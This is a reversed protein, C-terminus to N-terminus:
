ANLTELAAEFDFRQVADRLVAFRGSLAAALLGAHESLLREAAADDDALLARLRGLVAAQEAPDAPVALQETEPPLAAAIAAIRAALEEELSCILAEVSDSKAHLAAELAKARKQVEDAGVQGALGKLTHAEREATPEDAAALAQRIRQPMDAQGKVFGRLLALYREPKGLVRRLGAAMDLGDIYAPLQADVRTDVRADGEAAAVAEREGPKVWRLLARWLEEPEIPKSVFGNMGAELCRQRDAEMANATMAVIPLTALSPDRRLTRTADIGDLVPMQMDMLVIDYPKARAMEVAQQGDHAVDVRLGADRLLETAVQRNLENDEALLVRAGRLAALEAEAMGSQVEVVLDEGHGLRATFWFTSGKGPESEVGVEGGMLEALNKSIALGLGTGGYKRTTSADAQSFSQFLRQQQEPSLGIGTDRVAFRLLAKDDSLELLRVSVEIQGAETFKIANSVYNILIQGLRLSDGILVRPVDAGVDFMLTLGKAAIKDAHLSALHDLVQDLRFVREEVGLKGAEIKSFDLIDNIIGLLHQGSLHIKQLYDRQRPDLDTKLALYGMGIIANLPTRIEHSMNALFDAKTRAAGEALEKARRMQSEAAKLKDINVVWGLIAQEGEFETRLFTAMLHHPQNDPGYLQLEMDQVLGDQTLRELMLERAGEDVFVDRSLREKMRVLQRIRRNAFRFVGDVTIAVGVPATDLVNQLREREKQLEATRSVVKSELETTAEHLMHRMGEQAEALQRVEAWQTPVEVPRELDLAGIRRSEAGLRELPRVFERAIGLALAAGAGLSALALLLLLALDGPKSPIFDSEPAAVLLWVPNGKGVTSRQVLSYWASGLRGSRVLLSEPEGAERWRQLGISLQPLDLGDLPKLVNARVESEGTFRPDRPLAIVRGDHHVVAAMGISGAAVHTTFRSLDMLRVDHSVVFRRGDPATWRASVTVGPEQTTFFIYPETWAMAQEDKLALAGKFWPRTRADYPVDRTDDKILRRNKDWYMWRTRSGWRTPDSIRNVWTGDDMHLLFIERGTEDAMQVSSIEPDSAIVAFFFDNFRTLDDLSLLGFRGWSVSTRATSEVSKVLQLVRADLEGAVQSMQASALAEVSPAVIWRIACLSFVLLVGATLVTIRSVLARRISIAGGKGMGLLAV